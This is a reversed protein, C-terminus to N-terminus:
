DVFAWLLSRSKPDLGALDAIRYLDGAVDRLLLHDGPLRRPWDDLRTQFTRVGQLTRVRWHRLEVEEEVEQVGIVEFVFGAEALADELAARSGNDLAGPDEVLVLEEEDDDRLSVFRGPESWPFCRRVHVARREGGIAVSLTGDPRRELVPSRRADEPVTRDDRRSVTRQM